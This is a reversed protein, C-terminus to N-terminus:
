SFEQTVLFGFSNKQPKKFKSQLDSSNQSYEDFKSDLRRGAQRGHGTTGGGLKQGPVYYTSLADLESLISESIESIDSM